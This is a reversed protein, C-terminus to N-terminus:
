MVLSATNTAVDKARKILTERFHRDEATEERMTTIVDRTTEGVHSAANLIAARKENHEPHVQFIPEIVCLKTDRRTEDSAKQIFGGFANMMRRAAEVLDERRQEEPFM